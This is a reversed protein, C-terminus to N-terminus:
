TQLSTKRIQSFYMKHKMSLSLLGDEDDLLPRLEAMSLSFRRGGEDKPSSARDDGGCSEESTVRRYMQVIKKYLIRMMDGVHRWGM